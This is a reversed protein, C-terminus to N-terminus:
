PKQDGKDERSIVMPLSVTVTTGRDPLSNFSIEGKHELIIRRSISLGLGTGGADRRTTFFPDGLRKLHESPIGRGEDRVTILVARKSEQFGTKVIVAQSSSTLAQCANQLLNIFVQELRQRNGKVVPLNDGFEVVFRTTSKKLLNTTLTIAAKLPENVDITQESGPTERLSYARLERVISSIREAGQLVGEVQSLVRERARSYPIGGLMFEGSERHFSDLIPLASEWAKRLIAANSLIFSNPNNIEHAVGSVLTGLSIMKEVQAEYVQRRQSEAELRRRETVDMLVGQVCLPKGDDQRVITAEDHVWIEEGSKRIMRYEAVMRDPRGAETAVRFEIRDRDEPHICSRWLGPERRFDDPAWGLLPEIQPSVYELRDNATIPAIYVVVPLHHLLPRLHEEELGRTAEPPTKRNKM